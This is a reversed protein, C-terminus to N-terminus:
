CSAKASGKEAGKPFRRLLSSELIAQARTAITEASPFGAHSDAVIAQYKTGLCALDLSFRLMQVNGLTRQNGACLTVMKDFRHQQTRLWEPTLYSLMGEGADFPIRDQLGKRGRELETLYARAEHAAAGYYYDTFEKILAPVDANVDSYINDLVYTYLDAFNADYFVGPADHEYTTGMVGAGKMLRTDAVVRDLLGSPLATNYLMPYYWVIVKDSLRCWNKLNNYTEANEPSNFCKRFDDDIPAFVIALNDPLKGSIIPPKEMQVKRYALTSLGAKPYKQKIAACVEILYDILPGGPTQYKAELAKCGQCYCFSGGCDMASLNYFGRGGERGINELLRDTLQKRLGPNSFCLQMSMVRKGTADLSFYEPHAEFFYGPKNWPWGMIDYGYAPPIYHFLTHCAPGPLEFDKLNGNKALDPYISSTFGPASSNLGNRFLYLGKAPHGYAYDVMHNRYAFSPIFHDNLAPVLLKRHQPVLEDGYPTFWRCGLQSKLFRYVAQCTGHTGQGALLMDHGQTLQLSEQQKLNGLIKRGFLKKAFAGDGVVIRKPYRGADPANVLTFKIGTSKGLYTSLEQVAIADLAGGTDPRVIVYDSKGNNAIVLKGASVTIPSLGALLCM